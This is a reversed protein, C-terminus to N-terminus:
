GRVTLVPCHAETVVRYSTAMTGPLGSRRKPGIVILDVALEKAVDVIGRGAPGAEVLPKPECALIADGPVLQRLREELLHRNSDAGEKVVHLLYLRARYAKALSIAYGLAVTAEESFDTPHLIAHLEVIGEPNARVHPGITLAPFHAHRFVKEAVSGFVAKGLGTRGHTGLVVVDLSERRVVTDIEECVDGSRVVAEHPVGKLRSALQEMSLRAERVGQATAALSVHTPFSSALPGVAVVHAVVLKGGPQRALSLAYPLAASACDSFDTAFLVRKTLVTAPSQNLAAERRALTAYPEGYQWRAVVDTGEMVHRQVRSAALTQGASARGRRFGEL